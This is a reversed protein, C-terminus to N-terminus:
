GPSSPSRTAVLFVVSAILMTAAPRGQVRPSRITVVRASCWEFRRGQSRRRSQPTSTVRSSGRGVARDQELRELGRDVVPLSTATVCAEFTSPETAGTLSIPRIAWSWPGPDEDVAGMGHGMEPDVRGVEAAVEQGKGAVLHEPRHRRPARSARARARAGGRQRRSPRPRESPSTLGAAPAPRYSAPVGFTEPMSPRARATADDRPSRSPRPGPGRPPASLGAGQRARRVAVADPDEPRHAPVGRM